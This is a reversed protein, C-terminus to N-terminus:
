IMDITYKFMLVLTYSVHAHARVYGCDHVLIYILIHLPIYRHARLCKRTCTCVLVSMAM